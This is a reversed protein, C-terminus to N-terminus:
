TEGMFQNRSRGAGGVEDTGAEGHAYPIVPM